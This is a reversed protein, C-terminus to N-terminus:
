KLKLTLDQVQISQAGPKREGQEGTEINKCWGLRVYEEGNITTFVDGEERKIAGDMFGDPEVVEVKLKTM